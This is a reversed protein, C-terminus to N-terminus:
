RSETCYAGCSKCPLFSTEGLILITTITFYKCLYFIYKFTGNCIVQAEKDNSLGQSKGSLNVKKPEHVYEKLDFVSQYHEHTISTPYKASSFVKIAKQMGTLKEIKHRSTKIRDNLKTTEDMNQKIRRTLRSFVDDVINNLNDLTDAIQLIAEETTLDNPVLKIKYIGEM